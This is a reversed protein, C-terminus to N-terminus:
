WCSWSPWMAPCFRGNRISTRASRRRWRRRRHRRRAHGVPQRSRRHDGGRLRLPAAGPRHQSRLQRARRSVVRRGRLGRARHGHDACLDIQQQHGHAARDRCRRLHRPIRPRARHPLVRRQAARHRRGRRRPLHAADARGRHRRRAAAVRKAPPRRRAAQHRGLVNGAPREARHDVARVHDAAAAPHQPRARSQAAGVAARLRAAFMLPVVVAVALIIPVGVATLALMLFAALVILDGHALNVLRMIGFIVSLGTAYLSYLGGLLIGQLLTDVWGLM